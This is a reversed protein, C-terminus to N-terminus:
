QLNEGIAIAILNARRVEEAVFKWRPTYLMVAYGEPHDHGIKEFADEDSLECVRIATAELERETLLKTTM